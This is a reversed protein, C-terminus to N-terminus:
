TEIEVSPAADPPGGFESSWGLLIRPHCDLCTREELQPGWHSSPCTDDHVIGVVRLEPRHQGDIFVAGNSDSFTGTIM